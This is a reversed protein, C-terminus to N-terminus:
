RNILHIGNARSIVKEDSERFFGLQALKEADITDEKEGSSAIWRNRKPDTIILQEENQVCIELLWSALPGEEIIVQRPRPVSRVFDIFNIASTPVKRAM